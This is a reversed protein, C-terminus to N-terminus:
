DHYGLEDYDARRLREDYGLPSNVPM